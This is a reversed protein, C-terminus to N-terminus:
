SRSRLKAPPRAYLLQLDPRISELFGGREPQQLETATVPYLQLPETLDTLSEGVKACRAWFGQSAFTPSVLLVDVDSDPTAERRARSGFLYLAEVAIGHAELCRVLRRTLSKLSLKAPVM